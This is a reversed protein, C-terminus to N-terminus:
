FVRRKVLREELRSLSGHFDLYRARAETLSVKRFRIKNGPKAQGLRSIDSTTVTAIKPYGGSTQADMMLVIPKGSGPVQVAGPTLADTVIETAGKHRVAVGDLRYGMRDSEPTLTYAQSLFTEVGEATFMDEQPGLIVDVVFEDEYRPVLEAPLVRSEKPFLSSAFARLTDGARLGRGEYGGFGGRIYTSRSGLVVPVSIGGKVALYARCGSRASGSFAIVDGKKVNMTEWLPAVKGNVFLSFDAGAVAMQTLNLAELEPGFLTVELCADSVANEVLANACMFAFKDMAGSVPVGFRQFGFRGLDQVSSFLGPKVVRFVEVAKV